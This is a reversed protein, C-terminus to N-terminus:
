ALEIRFKNYEDDQYWLERINNKSLSRYSPILIVNVNRNFKVKQSNITPLNSINELTQNYNHNYRLLETTISFSIGYSMFGSLFGWFIVPLPM